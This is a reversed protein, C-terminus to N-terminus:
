DKEMVHILANVKELRPIIQQKVAWKNIFYVIFSLVVSGGCLAMTRNLTVGPREMFGIFFLSTFVIFPIIAWYLATDMLQKQKLLFERSKYLYELYTGAFPIRPRSKKAKRLRLILYVSWIAILACAIKPLAFPVFYTGFAFAPVAILLSMNDMRDRNKVERHLRDLNSEVEIILRSREFKVLEQNPPSKWIKILEDEIM